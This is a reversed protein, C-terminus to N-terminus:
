EAGWRLYSRSEPHAKQIAIVPADSGHCSGECYDASVWIEAGSRIRASVTTAVGGNVVEDWLSAVSAKQLFSQRHLDAM